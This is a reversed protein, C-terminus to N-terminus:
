GHGDFRLGDRGRVMAGQLQRQAQKGIEAGVLPKTSALPIKGLRDSRARSLHGRGMRRRTRVSRLSLPHLQSQRLSELVRRVDIQNPLNAGASNPAVYRAVTAVVEM